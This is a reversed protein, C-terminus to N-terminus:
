VCKGAQRERQRDVLEVFGGQRQAPMSFDSELVVPVDAVECVVEAAHRIQEPEPGNWSRGANKCMAAGVTLGVGAAASVGLLWFGLAAVHATGLLAGVIVGSVAILAGRGLADLINGGITHKNEAEATRNSVRAQRRSANGPWKGAPLSKANRRSCRSM